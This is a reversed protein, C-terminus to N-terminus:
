AGKKGFRRNNFETLASDQTADVDAAHGRERVPIRNPELSTILRETAEPARDLEERWTQREAPAIRGDSVAAAVLGDRHERSERETRENEAAALAALQRQNEEWQTRSVTVVETAATPEQTPDGEETPEPPTEEQTETSTTDSTPEPLLADLAEQVQEDTADEPLGLRQRREEATIEPMADGTQGSPGDSGRGGTPPAPQAGSGPAPKNPRELAAAVTQQRRRTVLATAAAGDGSGVPVFTERVRIPTGFTVEDEGDTSFPISWLAGEGDDAIVEDPDIRISRAWWWYTDLGDVPDSMAWDFNFRERVVSVDVSASANRPM